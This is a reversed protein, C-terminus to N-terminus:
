RLGLVLLLLAPAASLALASPLAWYRLSFTWKWFGSPTAREHTRALEALRARAQRYERWTRAQANQLSDSRAMGKEAVSMETQSLREQYGELKGRLSGIEPDAQFYLSKRMPSLFLAALLSATLILGAAAGLLARGVPIPMFTMM